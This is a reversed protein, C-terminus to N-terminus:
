KKKEKYYRLVVNRSILNPYHNAKSTQYFSQAQRFYKVVLILTKAEPGHKHEQKMYLVM